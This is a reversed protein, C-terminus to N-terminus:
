FRIQIWKLNERRENKLINKRQINKWFTLIRISAGGRRLCMTKKPPATRACNIRSRSTFKKIKKLIKKSNLRYILCNKIPNRSILAFNHLVHTADSDEHFSNTRIAWEM